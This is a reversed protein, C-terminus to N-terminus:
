KFKWDIFHYNQKGSDGKCTGEGRVVNGACIQAKDSFRKGFSKACYSGALVPIQIHQLIIAAPGNTNMYGWGIVTPKKGVLRRNRMKEDLPLCIPRIKELNLFYNCFVKDWEYKLIEHM